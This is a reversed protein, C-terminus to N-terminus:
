MKELEEKSDLHKTDYTNLVDQNAGSLIFNHFIVNIKKDVSERNYLTKILKLIRETTAFHAKINNEDLYDPPTRPVTFPRNPPNYKAKRLFGEDLERYPISSNNKNGEVDILSTSPEGENINENNFDSNKGKNNSPLKIRKTTDQTSEVEIEVELIGQPKNVTVKPNPTIEVTVSPLAADNTDLNTQIDIMHGSQQDIEPNLQNQNKNSSNGKQRDEFIKYAIKTKSPSWLPIPNDKGNDLDEFERIHSATPLYKKRTNCMEEYENVRTEGPIKAFTVYSVEHTSSSGQLPKEIFSFKFFEDAYETLMSSWNSYMGASSDHVVWSKPYNSAYPLRTKNNAQLLFKCITENHDKLYVAFQKAVVQSEACSRKKLGNKKNHNEFLKIGLFTAM